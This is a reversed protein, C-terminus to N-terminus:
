IRQKINTKLCQFYATRGIVRFASTKVFTDVELGRFNEAIKICEIRILISLNM